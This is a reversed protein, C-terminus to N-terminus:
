SRRALVVPSRARLLVLSLGLGRSEEAGVLRLAACLVTCCSVLVCICVTLVRENWGDVREATSQCSGPALRALAHWVFARMEASCRLFPCCGPLLLLMMLLM